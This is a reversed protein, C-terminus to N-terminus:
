RRLLRLTASRTEGERVTVREAGSVLRALVDANQWEGADMTGDIRDVAAVHYDGPPLGAIRFTGDHNATSFKLWRSHPNWRDRFVPFVVVSYNTVATERDTAQGTITGGKESVVIEADGGNVLGAPDVGTDTVDVGGITVSKLFWADSPAQRLRFATPGFVSSVYFTLESSVVLSPGSGDPRVRDPDLAIPVVSFSRL